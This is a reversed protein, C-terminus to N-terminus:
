RWLRLRAVTECRRDVSRSEGLRSRGARPALLLSAVTEGRASEDAAPASTADASASAEVCSRCGPQASKDSNRRIERKRSRAKSLASAIRPVVQWPAQHYYSHTTHAFLVIASVASVLMATKAVTRQSIHVRTGGLGAFLPILLVLVPTFYRGQIGQIQGAGVSTWTLYIGFAAALLYAALTAVLWGHLRPKPNPGERSGIALAALVALWLLAFWEPLPASGLTGIVGNLNFLQGNVATQWLLVPVNYLHTLLYHEQRAPSIYVQLSRRYVTDRYPVFYANSAITWWAAAGIGPLVTVIARWRRAAGTGLAPWVIAIAALLILPVPLKLLGVLVGLASLRALETTRAPTNRDALRLAYAVILATLGLMMSDASLTAGEALATPVLLALSFLWKWRPVLAVSATILTAWVIGTVVRAAFLTAIVSASLQRGIWFILTQPLYNAPSYLATNEFHAFITASGGLTAAFVGPYVRPDFHPRGMATMVQQLSGFVHYLAASIQGGVREGPVLRGPHSVKCAAVNLHAACHILQPFLDGLSIQYTRFAHQAEDQGNGLPLVFAMYLVSLGSIAATWVVPGPLRLSRV